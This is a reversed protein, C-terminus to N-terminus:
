ILIIISLNTAQFDMADIACLHSYNIKGSDSSSSIPSVFEFSSSVGKTNSFISCGSFELAEWDSLAECLFACGLIEPSRCIFVDEPTCSSQWIEHGVHRTFQGVKLTNSPYDEIKSERCVKLVSFCLFVDNDTRNHFTRCSM